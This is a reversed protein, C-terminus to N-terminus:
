MARGLLRGCLDTDAPTPLGYLLLPPPPAPPLPRGNLWLMAHSAAPSRADASWANTPPLPVCFMLGV